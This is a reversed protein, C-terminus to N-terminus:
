PSFLFAFISSHFSFLRSFLIKLLLFSIWYERSNIKRHLPILAALHSQLKATTRGKPAVYSVYSVDVEWRDGCGRHVGCSLAWGALWWSHSLSSFAKLDSSKCAGLWSWRKEIANPFKAKWERVQGFVDEGWCRLCWSSLIPVHIDRERGAGKEGSLKEGPTLRLNEGPEPRCGGLLLNM